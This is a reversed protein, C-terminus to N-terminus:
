EGPHDKAADLESRMSRAIQRRQTVAYQNKESSYLGRLFAFDWETLTLPLTAGDPADLITLITPPAPRSGLKTPDTQAFTRMAAYDGVETTTLGVLASADIVLVSALFHPRATPRVHSAEGKVHYIGNHDITAQTGDTNLLDPIHWSTAHSGDERITLRRGASNVFYGPLHQKMWKIMAKKDGAVIVLANGRCPEGAVPIAVARGVERIRAAVAENQQPRLGFVRPCVSWEFRGLQGSYPPAPTLAKVFDQVQRDRDRTGEVVIEQQNAPPPLQQAGASNAFALGLAALILTRM